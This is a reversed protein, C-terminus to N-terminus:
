TKQEGQEMEKNEGKKEAVTMDKHTVWEPGCVKKSDATKQTFLSVHMSVLIYIEQTLLTAWIVLESELM